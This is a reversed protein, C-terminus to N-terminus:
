PLPKIKILDKVIFANPYAYAIKKLFGEAELRTRFNGVRIMYNPSQFLLTVEAGSFQQIFEARKDMARKKSNNGSDFFIQVKYGSIGDVSENWQTHARILKNVRDDQSLMVSSSDQTYGKFSGLFLSACLVLGVFYVSRM